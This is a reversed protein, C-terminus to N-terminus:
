RVRPETRDGRDASQPGPANGSDVVEDLYFRTAEEAALKIDLDSCLVEARFVHTGPQMAHARIRLVLQKGAPLEEIPRFSVRGDAMSSMAGEVARPEVGQSFFAFVNVNRAASAGCNEVRIEYVAEDGVAVPGQPDSVELKLDALAVVNTRAVQSDVLDGTATSATIKLENSGPTIVRCKLEMYRDDGPGLTGVQWALAHHQADYTQGESARVLEAGEPLIVTVTVDEASATGPNRVRFFHTAETGAYKTEPGRWDVALEPKRCFVDRSADSTLGGDASATAKVSLKGAEQPTLEVDLSRSAGAPLNGLPHSTMATQANGLPQVDIKVNEAVGTGPNTLTLRYPQPKGFLVEEPGFVELQLKPEQVEVVARSGVPELTWSVGLELPQSTRPVLRVDLTESAGAELLALQWELLGAKQADRSPQITGHTAVTNVIDAWSPVQISAILGGAAVQGQNQLRVRYTAERGILIQKPGRIDTTIVPTQHTMLVDADAVLSQSSERFAERQRVTSLAVSEATVGAVPTTGLRVFGQHLDASGTSDQTKFAAEGDRPPQEYGASNGRPQLQIGAVSTASETVSETGETIALTPTPETEDIPTIDSNASTEEAPVTKVTASPFAGALERRMAEPDIQATTRRQPSPRVALRSRKGVATNSSSSRATTEAHDDPQIVPYDRTIERSLDVGNTSRPRVNSPAIAGGPQPSGGPGPSAAGGPLAERQRLSGTHPREAIRGPAAANSQVQQQSHKPNGRSDLPVQGHSTTAPQSTAAPETERRGFFNSSFWSRTDIKPFGGRSQAPERVGQQPVAKSAHSNNTSQESSSQDKETWGRGLSAMREALTPQREPSQSQAVSAWLAVVLLGSLVALSRRTM